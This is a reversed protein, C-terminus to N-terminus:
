TRFFVLKKVEERHLTLLKLMKLLTLLALLIPLKYSPAVEMESTKKPKNEEDMKIQFIEAATNKFHHFAEFFHYDIQVIRISNKRFCQSIRVFNASSRKSERLKPM